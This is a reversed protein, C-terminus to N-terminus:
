YPIARDVEPAEQIPVDILFANVEEVFGPDFYRQATEQWWRRSRPNSLNGAIAGRYTEWTAQDLVGNRYQLWEYERMRIFALMDLNIAGKEADTLPGEKWWLLSRSPNNARDLLLQIDTEVIGRRTNALIAATNQETQASLQQTQIALYGLTALVAVSSIIEAIVSAKAWNM